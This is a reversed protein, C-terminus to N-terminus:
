PCSSEEPFNFERGLREVLEGLDSVVYDPKGDPEPWPAAKRNIWAARLGARQAGLVDLRPDDGVHLVEGPAVGLRECAAHFISADPKAVGHEHAGLLFVFHRDIGIRTLDASGNTLAAVPFNEALRGLAEIAGPFPDVINRHVTFVEFAREALAADEGSAHLAHKLTLRRQAALDHALQPNQAIVRNRLDRMALIPYNRATRPAHQSLWDHLQKEAQVITPWIPWLTDDLDLTIARISM